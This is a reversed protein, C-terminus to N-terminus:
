GTTAMGVEASFIPPVAMHALSFDRGLLDEAMKWAEELSAAPEFGLRKVVEVEQAGVVIVKGLQELAIGCWYWVYFPHVGHYSYGFRYAQVYDARCAFDEEFLREMERPDRTEALVRQFFEIYPLHHRPHFGPRFPQMLVLVGGPRVLPRGQHMNFVYGLASNAALLPNIRSYAAYPSINPLSLFLADFRREVRTNQQRFLVELTRPHVEEPNGAHVAVPRYASRLLSAVSAKLADPFHRSIRFALPVKSRSLSLYRDLPFPWVRNDVVTELSFLNAHRALHRGQEAMIRHFRSRPDMVTGGEVLVEPNHHARISRYAGLGVMYSKWGGNMSTWNLNVYVTLDSETLLRNVVVPHGGETSGLDVIGRPDEADHNVIRERGVAAWVRKGLIRRLERPKWKRHLGNACVLTVREREVGHSFLEELVAEVAIARPDLLPPPLPLCPDDFAVTVRFHPKIISALPPSGLPERLAAKVAARYDTLAPLPPPAELVRTREPLEVQVLDDGYFVLRRM